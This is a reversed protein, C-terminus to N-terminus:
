KLLMPMGRIFLLLSMRVTERVELYLNKPRFDWPETRAFARVSGHNLACDFFM